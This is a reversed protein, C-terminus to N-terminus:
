QEMAPEPYAVGCLRRTPRSLRSGRVPRDLLAPSPDHGAYRAPLLLRHAEVVVHNIPPV